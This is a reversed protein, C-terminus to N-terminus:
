ERKFLRNLPNDDVVEKSYKYIFSNGEIGELVIKARRFIM